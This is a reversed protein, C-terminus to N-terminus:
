KRTDSQKCPTNMTHECEMVCVCVCVDIEARVICNTRALAAYVHEEFIRILGVKQDIYDTTIGPKVISEAFDLVQAHPQV